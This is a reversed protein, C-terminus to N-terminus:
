CRSWEPTRDLYKEHFGIGNDEVTLQCREGERLHVLDPGGVELIRASVKVV